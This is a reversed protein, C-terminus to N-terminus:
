RGPHAPEYSSTPSPSSYQSVHPRAGTTDGFPITEDGAVPTLAEGPLPEGPLPDSPLPDSPLPESPPALAPDWPEDREADEPEDREDDREEDDRLDTDPRSDRESGPASLAPVRDTDTRLAPETGDDDPRPLSPAPRTM